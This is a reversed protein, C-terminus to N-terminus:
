MTESHRPVTSEFWAPRTQLGAEDGSRGGHQKLRVVAIQLLRERLKETIAAGADRQLAVLEGITMARLDDPTM